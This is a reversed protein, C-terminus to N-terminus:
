GTAPEFEILLQAPSVQAGRAVHVALVRLKVPAALTHEMKMAELVVLATNAEVEDGPKVPVDVVKGNMPAVLRGDAAGGAARQPPDM